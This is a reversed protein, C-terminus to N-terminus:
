KDEIMAFKELLGDKSMCYDICKRVIKSAGKDMETDKGKNSLRRLYKWTKLDIRVSCRQLKEHIM